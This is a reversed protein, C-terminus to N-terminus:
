PQDETVNFATFAWVCARLLGAAAGGAMIATVIVVLWWPANLWAPLLIAVSAIPAAIVVLLGIKAITTVVLRGMLAPDIGNQMASRWERVPAVLFITNEVALMILGVLLGAPLAGLGWLALEPDLRGLIYGILLTAQAGLVLLLPVLMQGVVIAWPSLPLAKLTPLHDLDARFDCKLLMPLLLPPWLSLSLLVGVPAGPSTGEVQLRAFWFAGGVFLLPAAFLLVAGTRYLKVAQRWAIPGVGSLRPPMFVRRRALRSAAAGTPTAIGRSMAELRAARKQSAVVLAEVEGRDLLLFAVFLGAIIALSVVSWALCAWASPVVMAEVFPAVPLFLAEAAPTARLARGWAAWADLGEQGVPPRPATLVAAALAIVLPAVIALLGIRGLTRARAILTGLLATFVNLFLGLLTFGLARQPYSAGIRLFIAIWLGGLVMLPVQYAFQYILLQRRTVPGPLVLDLEAPEFSARASLERAATQGIVMWLMALPAWLRVAEASIGQGAVFFQPLMYLAVVVLGVISFARKKGGSFILRRLRSKYRLRILRRLGAPLLSRDPENSAPPPAAPQVPAADSLTASM